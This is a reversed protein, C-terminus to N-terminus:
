CGSRCPWRRCALLQQAALHGSTGGLGPGPHTSAGIQWLGPVPTRHHPANAIPRWFLTQDLEASGAYGDGSIANRNVSELGAPSIPRIRRVLGRLGPAFAEIRRLVRDAYGAQLAEDWGASTDLEGASDARPTPPVEHLQLWLLAKGDPVRSPDLIHQQGVVITPEAPILGALAQSCAIGTSDAGNSVHLVPVEGLRADTWRVPGDLAVHIQMMGKGPRYRRAQGAVRAPVTGPPLMQTYLQGPAMSALIARRARILRDGLRVGVARRGEVDIGTVAEGLVLAVGLEEFLGAFADVFRGQGGRVLPMGFQHMAPPLLTLTLSGSASDPGLGAHLLWPVWLADVEWGSFRERVFARGSQALSRLLQMTGAVKHRRLTSAAVRALRWPTLESGMVALIQPAYAGFEGLIALYADRDSPVGFNEITRMPDRHALVVGRESVSGTVWRDTNLYEMGHRHLAAGLAGYAAGSIFLPHFSSYTDHRYGPETLQETAIFGGIRENADVLAVSWGGIALEAAAVLGNIGAGVVVADVVDGTRSSTNV